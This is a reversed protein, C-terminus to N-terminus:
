SESQQIAAEIEALLTEYEPLHAQISNAKLIEGAYDCANKADYARNAALLGKAYHLNALAAYRKNTYREIIKASERMLNVGFDINGKKIEYYGINIEALGIASPTDNARLTVIKKLLTIKEDIMDEPLLTAFRNYCLSIGHRDDVAQYYELAKQTYATLEKVGEGIRVHQARNYWMSAFFWLIKKDDSTNYPELLAFAKEYIANADAFRTQIDYSLALQRFLDIIGPVFEIALIEDIICECLRSHLNYLQHKQVVETMREAASAAEKADRKEMAEIYRVYYRHMMITYNVGLEKRCERILLKLTSDSTNM